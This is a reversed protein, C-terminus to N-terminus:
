NELLSFLYIVIAYLWWLPWFFIALLVLRGRYEAMFLPFLAPIIQKKIGRIILRYSVLIMGVYVVGDVIYLWM